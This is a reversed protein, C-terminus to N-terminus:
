WWRRGRLGRCDREGQTVFTAGEGCMNKSSDVGFSELSLQVGDMREDVSKVACYKGKRGTSESSGEWDDFGLCVEGLADSNGQDGHVNGM